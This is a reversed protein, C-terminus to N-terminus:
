IFVEIPKWINRNTVDECWVSNSLYLQTGVARVFGWKFTGVKNAYDKLADFKKPAYGDVNNSSGDATLGGKAEIVWIDGNQLEIIYDPYFHSRRFAKRYVISFYESGKDGNKYIHKIVRSLKLLNSKYTEITSFSCGDKAKSDLWEQCHSPRIQRVKEIDPYHEKIYECLNHATDLLNSKASFSCVRWGQDAQGSQHKASHKDYRFSFCGEIATMSQVFLSRQKKSM